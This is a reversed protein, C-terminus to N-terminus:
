FQLVDAASACNSSCGKVKFSLYQETHGLEKGSINM